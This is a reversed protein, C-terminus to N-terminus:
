CVEIYAMGQAVMSAMDILQPVSAHQGQKDKLYHLLSGNCMYETVIMLPEKSSFLPTALDFIKRFNQNIKKQLIGPFIDTIGLLCRLAIRTQSTQSDENSRGGTQVGRPGDNGSADKQGCSRCAREM